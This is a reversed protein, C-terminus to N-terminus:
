KHCCSSTKENEYRDHHAGWEMIKDENRGMPILNFYNDAGVLMDVGRAYTSYTPFIEGKADRHYPSLNIKPTLLECM